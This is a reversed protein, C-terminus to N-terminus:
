EAWGRRHAHRHMGELTFLDLPAAAILMQQWFHKFCTQFTWVKERFQFSFLFNLFHVTPTREYIVDCCWSLSSQAPSKFAYHHHLTNRFNNENEHRWKHFIRINFCSKNSVPTVSYVLCKSIHSFNTLISKIRGFLYNNLDLKPFM